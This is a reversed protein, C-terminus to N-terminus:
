AVFVDRGSVERAERALKVGASNIREFEDDLYIQSIKRRNAVITNTEIQDAAAREFSPHLTVDTQQARRNAKELCRLRPASSTVLVGMGIDGVVIPGDHLRQEFRTNM